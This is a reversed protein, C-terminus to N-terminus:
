LYIFVSYLTSFFMGDIFFYLIDTIVVVLIINLLSVCWYEAYEGDTISFM